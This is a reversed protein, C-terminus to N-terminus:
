KHVIEFFGIIKHKGRRWNQPLPPFTLAWLFLNKQCYSSIRAMTSHLLICVKHILAVTNAKNDKLEYYHMKNKRQRKRPKIFVVDFCKLQRYFM